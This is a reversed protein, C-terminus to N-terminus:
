EDVDTFETPPVSDTSDDYDSSDDYSDDYDSDYDPDYDSDDSDDYSYSKSSSSSKSSKSSKKSSSSKSSSSDSSRNGSPDADGPETSTIGTTLVIMTQEVTDVTNNLNLDRVTIRGEVYNEDQEELNETYGSILYASDNNFDSATVDRDTAKFSKGDYTFFKEETKAKKKGTLLYAKGDSIFQSLYVTGSDDGIEKDFMVFIYGGNTAQPSGSYLNVLETGNYGWVDLIYDGTTVHTKKGFEDVKTKSHVTVLEQLGDGNFDILQAFEM